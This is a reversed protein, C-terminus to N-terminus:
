PVMGIDADAVMTMVLMVVTVAKLLIEEKIMALYIIGL